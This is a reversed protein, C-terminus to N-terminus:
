YISNVREKSCHWLWACKWSRNRRAKSRIESDCAYPTPRDTRIVVTKADAPPDAEPEGRGCYDRDFRFAYKLSVEETQTCGLCRFTSREIAEKVAPQLMQSGSVFDVREVAGDAKIIVRVIVDGSVHGMKAIQPWVPKQLAFEVEQQASSGFAVLLLPLCAISALVRM